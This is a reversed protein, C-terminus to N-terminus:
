MWFAPRIYKSRAQKRILGKMREAHMAALHPEGDPEYFGPEQVGSDLRREGVAGVVM